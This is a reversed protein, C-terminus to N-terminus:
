KLVLLSERCQIGLTTPCGALEAVTAPLSVGPRTVIFFLRTPGPPWDAGIAQRLSPAGVLFTGSAQREVALSLSRLAGGAPDVAFVHLSSAASAQLPDDVRAPLRWRVPADVRHVAPGDAPEPEDGRALAVQSSFEVPDYAPLPPTESTPHPLALFLMVAAACSALPALWRWMRREGAAALVRRLQRRSELGSPPRFLESCAAIEEDPAVGRLEGAAEEFTLRGDLM